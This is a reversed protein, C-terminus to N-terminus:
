TTVGTEVDDEGSTLFYNVIEMSKQADEWCLKKITEPLEGTMGSIMPIMHGIKMGTGTQGVPIHALMGLTLENKFEIRTIVKSGSKIQKKLDIPVPLIYHVDEGVDPASNEENIFTNEEENFETDVITKKM